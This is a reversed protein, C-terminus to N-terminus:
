VRLGRSRLADVAPGISGGFADGRLVTVKGQPWACELKRASSALQMEQTFQVQALPAIQRGSPTLLWGSTFDLVVIADVAATTRAHNRRRFVLRALALIGAGIVLAILAFPSVVFTLVVGNIAAIGGVLVLVFLLVNGGSGPQQGFTWREGDAVLVWDGCRALEAM